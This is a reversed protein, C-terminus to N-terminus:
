PETPKIRKDLKITKTRGLDPFQPFEIELVTVGDHMEAGPGQLEADLTLRVRQQCCLPDACCIRLGGPLEEVLVLAKQDSYLHLGEALVARGPRFFVVATVGENRNRVVMSGATNELVEFGGDAPLAGEAARPAVVYRYAAGDPKTGHDLWLSFVPGSLPQTRMDLTNIDSWRGEQVRTSLVLREAQPFLYEVDAHRIRVSGTLTDCAGASFQRGGSADTVLVPGSLHCQNVATAIPAAADSRISNGLCLMRDGLLFYAKRAQLGRYDYEFAMVGHRGDSVGGGFENTGFLYGELHASDPCQVATTGPIKTWDWFPFIGRYEEGSTLINTAGLPLNFGKLNERNLQETGVTRTSPIKVSLYYDAGHHVMLDSCWFYKNGPAPFAASDTVHSRWARFEAAHASDIGIMKDLLGPSLNDPGGPRSINRGVTGFDFGRRYGLMRTGDLLTRTLLARREPTFEAEFDTGHALLIYDAMDSLLSMGYGGSYIQARHQHISGDVKLGEDGQRPAIEMTSAIERFGTSVLAYDDEICGKYITVAAVWTRNKGRHARNGTRDQLYASLVMLKERPLVGKLPLLATMYKQPAGIDVYWWNEIVPGAAYYALYADFAATIKELLGADRYWPSGSRVFALTLVNLRDLHRIVPFGKARLSYDIDPWRGEADLSAILPRAAAADFDRQRFGDALRRTVTDLDSRGAGTEFPVGPVLPQQARLPLALLLLFLIPFARRM